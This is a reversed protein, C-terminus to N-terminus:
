ISPVRSAWGDQTRVQIEESPFFWKGASLITVKNEGQVSGGFPQVKRLEGKYLFFNVPPGTRVSHSM